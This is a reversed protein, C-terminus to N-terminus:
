VGTHRRPTVRLPFTRERQKSYDPTLAADSSNRRGCMFYRETKKNETAANPWDPARVVPCAARRTIPCVVNVLWSEFELSVMRPPTLPMAYAASVSKTASAFRTPAVGELWRM